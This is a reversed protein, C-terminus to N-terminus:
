QKMLNRLVTQLIGGNKYYEVDIPTDLRAIAQFEIQRGEEATATVTLAQRPQISDSIGLIDFTERGTLGLSEVNQGEKFVLPLVGMGVLNSRHIREFSEAIVAKVGLLLTGKAAWDRSSGTGYEKGALVILPTGDAKYKQAAEYISMKSGVGSGEGAPVGGAPSPPKGLYLTNGGEEGGLMLNKIRINAFTGRTMVRDNGRRTGYQNFDKPQVDHEILYKGAPSDKAINGAPSIHDTTISDGFVGLVRAGRIGTLAGRAADLRLDDFFPPNQIYTSDANWEFLDGGSVPIANWDPNGDFVNGYSRAFMSADISAAITDAIEKQTPWIDRLFVAQGDKGMGLPETNLDIDTTGALAYAVVLPPSALFNAKVQPHVRGEFNRNGSIVASAVLNGETVARAVAEPLPGSNGICNHVCVGGAVFAHLDAVSLDFVPREGAPRRDLVQLSFTPLTQDTKAVCYRKAYDTEDRAQLPAFWDRVGLQTFLEIPSPFGARDRHLPRFRRDSSKPLRGFRDHGELLSYHPFVGVERKTLEAAAMTRALGFTLEPQAQHLEDLRAAMDLRQRNIRDLIRWYVAAASARLTKDVCYRFGVREIFSLGDPLRLRVEVRPEGDQASPYSSPARRVPYEYVRAGEMNVGCRGLLRIVAQMVQKLPKIHEPRATQSYAPTELVADTEEDSLRHLVPAQGDAGFLGALFERVVAVPCNEDLVFAPLAPPQQIRRGIRVGPLARIANTLELPLVITWKREDYRNAAPRKGTILEVDNVVLERDVAQGVTMRGQGAVSISGDSLLHGILRALALTRRRQQPTDLSFSLQGAALVYGAEDAQAEDLPAELGMVVRDQGLVLQDARVWRGDDCLIKHDPTCVLERGDRLILAVCERVGQVLTATQLALELRSDGNPGFVNIGGATPIQEIRRSTGDGSLVPTGAAICTTCGYAAVNFGLQELYPLTGSKQLYETVVKSGPALSTKVYPKVTLGKEVAKKAVLGAGLMVSPNSTNTCSTIAAIVVSGHTMTASHGNDKVEATKAVESEPLGFGREKVPATLSKRFTTKLDKMPVRDQPRKPGALSPEVEALNLELTDSFVPDPTADTRFLGQEQTYRELLDASAVRNTARLYRLTEADTPFFGCTAGYEPAMNAMTARDALSMSSLGTGYFEVFKDVVGKKRLMQTVTLTLDTATVGDRLAGFLKFGIVQPTIMYLPQGLMVAEAEIGGVGWGLVGLGNIMTTHSDTGVLTDPFLVHGDGEAKSLVGQALFELNVQHVIGTAPPVVRLNNFAKAGWRLFEYREGNREFELQANRMLALESGFYDVQVSHDIVLDVPVLPNIKKPDGGLRKMADRMAALDVICPVGTFDQMVVRAPLFPLESPMPSRANWQALRKVDDDNVLYGDCNRLVAELLIKISFPLTNLQPALGSKALTDLRYIYFDGLPARAGFSNKITASM